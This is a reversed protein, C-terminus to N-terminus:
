LQILDCQFQFRNPAVYMSKAYIMPVMVVNPYIHIYFIEGIEDSIFEAHFGDPDTALLRPWTEEHAKPKSRQLHIQSQKSICYFLSVICELGSPLATDLPPM